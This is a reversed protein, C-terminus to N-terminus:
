GFKLCLTTSTLGNIYTTQTKYNGVADYGYHYYDGTSYDAATLRYLDDYDYNLTVSYSQTQMVYDTFFVDAMRPTAL